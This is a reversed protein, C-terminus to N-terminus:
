LSTGHTQWESHIGSVEYSKEWGFIIDWSGRQLMVDFSACYATMSDDIYKDCFVSAVFGDIKIGCGTSNDKM